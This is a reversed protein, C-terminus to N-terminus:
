INHVDLFLLLTITLPRCIRSQEYSSADNQSNDVFETDVIAIPKLKATVIHTHTRVREHGSHWTKGSAVPM